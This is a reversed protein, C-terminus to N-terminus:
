GGDHRSGVPAPVPQERRRAIDALQDDIWHGPDREMVIRRLGDARRQREAGSV